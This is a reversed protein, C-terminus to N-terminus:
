DRSKRRNGSLKGDYLRWSKMRSAADAKVQFLDRELLSLRAQQEHYDGTRFESSRAVFGKFREKLVASLMSSLREEDFLQALKRGVEYFYPCTDNLNEECPDARLRAEARASFMRPLRVEILGFSALNLGLWLPTKVAAGVPLDEEECADDLYGVAFGGYLFKGPVKEEEALIDDIDYYRSLLGLKVKRQNDNDAMTAHTHTHKHTHTRAPHPPFATAERQFYLLFM